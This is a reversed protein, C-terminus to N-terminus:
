ESEVEWDRIGHAQEVLRAFKLVKGESEEWLERLRAGDLPRDAWALPHYDGTPKKDRTVEQLVGHPALWYPITKGKVRDWTSDLKTYAMKIGNILMSYQYLPTPGYTEATHDNLFNSAWRKADKSTKFVRGAVMWLIPNDRPANLYDRIDESIEPQVAYSSFHALVKRLLSEAPHM